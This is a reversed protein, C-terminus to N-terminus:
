VVSEESWRRGNPPACRRCRSQCRSRRFDPLRPWHHSIQAQSRRISPDLKADWTPFAPVSVMWFGNLFWCFGVSDLLFRGFVLLFGVLISSKCHWSYPSIDYSITTRFWCFGVFRWLFWPPNWLWPPTGWVPQNIFSFWLLISSKPSYYVRQYVLM